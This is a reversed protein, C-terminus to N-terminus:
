RWAGNTYLSDSVVEFLVMFMGLGFRGLASYMARYSPISVAPLLPIVLLRKTDFDLILIFLETASGCSSTRVSSTNLGCCSRLTSSGRGLM